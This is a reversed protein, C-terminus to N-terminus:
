AVVDDAEHLPAQLRALAAGQRASLRLIILALVIVLPIQLFARATMLWALTFLDGEVQVSAGLESIIDGVAVEALWLGWWWRLLAPVPVRAPADADYSMRWFELLVQSPRILNAVPVFFWTVAARPKYRPQYRSTNALLHPNGGVAYFWRLLAAAAVTFLLVSLDEDNLRQLLSPSLRAVFLM